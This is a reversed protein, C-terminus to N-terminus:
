VKYGAHLWLWTPDSKGCRTWNWEELCCGSWITRVPRFRIYIAQDHEPWICRTQFCALMCFEYPGIRDSHLRCVVVVLKGSESKTTNKWLHGLDYQVFGARTQNPEPQSDPKPWVSGARSTLWQAYDHPVSRAMAESSIQIPHSDSRAHNVPPKRLENMSQTRTHKYRWVPAWSHLHSSPGSRETCRCFRKQQAVVCAETCPWQHLPLLCVCVGESVICTCGYVCADDHSCTCM